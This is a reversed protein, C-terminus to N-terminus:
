SARDKIMKKISESVVMKKYGVRFSELMNYKIYERIKHPSCGLIIATDKISYSPEMNDYITKDEIGLHKEINELKQFILDIKKNLFDENNKSM